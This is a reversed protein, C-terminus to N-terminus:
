PTSAGPSCGPAAAREPRLERQIPEIKEFPHLLDVEHGRAAGDVGRLRYLQQGGLAEVTVVEWRLGRAAVETGPLISSTVEVSM